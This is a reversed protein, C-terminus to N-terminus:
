VSVAEPTDVTDVLRERLVDAFGQVFPPKLLSGSGMGPVSVVTSGGRALRSWMLRVDDDRPPSEGVTFVLLLSGPYPAPAYRAAAHQNARMVLDSYLAYREGRYVDRQAVMESIISVKERLYRLRQGRPQRWLAVCHRAIGEGLFAVQQSFWSTGLKDPITTPPWTSILALLEVSESRAVLQQAIEYAIIGGMCFGMLRYPGHPQVRQIEALFHAAITEVRDLPAAEGELGVSRLGYIPQDTGLASALKEYGIVNGNVGPVVFAPPRSGGPQIVVAHVSVEGGDERLAVAMSEVTQGQFLVSVPVRRGLAKELNALLRLGLLSNGGLDFFNDHRGIGSVGLVQEWIIVLQTELATQPSFRDQGNEM